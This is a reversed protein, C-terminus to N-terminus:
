EDIIGKEVLIKKGEEEWWRRKVEDALKNMEEESIEIQSAIEEIEIRKLFDQILEWPIKKSIEIIFKEKSEKIALAM